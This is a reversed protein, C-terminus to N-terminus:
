GFLRETHVDVGYQEDLALLQPLIAEKYKPMSSTPSDSDKGTRQIHLALGVIVLKFGTVMDAIFNFATVPDNNNILEIIEDLGDKNSELFMTLFKKEYEPNVEM